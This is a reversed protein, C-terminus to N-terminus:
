NRRGTVQIAGFDTNFSGRMDDGTVTGTFALTLATGQADVNTSFRLAEGDVSVSHLAASGLDASRMEGSLDANIVLDANMSGIPTDITIAWNGVAPHPASTSTCAVLFLAMLMGAVLTGTRKIM